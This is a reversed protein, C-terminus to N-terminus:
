CPNFDVGQKLPRTVPKAEWFSCYGGDETPILVKNARCHADMATPSGSSDTPEFYKCTKCSEAADKYGMLDRIVNITQADTALRKRPLIMAPPTTM